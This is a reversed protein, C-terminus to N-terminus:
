IIAVSKIGKIDNLGNIMKNWPIRDCSNMDLSVSIKNENDKSVAYYDMDIEEDIKAFFERFESVKEDTAASELEIYFVVDPCYINQADLEFYVDFKM